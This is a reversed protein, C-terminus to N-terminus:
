AHHWRGRRSRDREGDVAGDGAGIKGPEAVPDAGDQGPAAGLDGVAVYGPDIGIRDRDVGEGAELEGRAAAPAL